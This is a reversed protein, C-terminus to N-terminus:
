RLKEIYLAQYISMGGYIYNIDNTLFGLAIMGLSIELPSISIKINREITRM